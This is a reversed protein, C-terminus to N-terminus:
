WQSRAAAQLERSVHQLRGLPILLFLREHPVWSPTLIHIMIWLYCEPVRTTSMLAPKMLFALGEHHQSSLLRLTGGHQLWLPASGGRESAHSFVRGMHLIAEWFRSDWGQLSSTPTDSTLSHFWTWLLTQYWPHSHALLPLQIRPARLNMLHLTLRRKRRWALLNEM